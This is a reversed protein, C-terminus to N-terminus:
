APSNPALQNAAVRYLGTQNAAISHAVNTTSDSVHHAAQRVRWYAAASAASGPQSSMSKPANRPPAQTLHAPTNHNPMTMANDRQGPRPALHLM